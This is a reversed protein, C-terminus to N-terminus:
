NCLVVTAAFEAWKSPPAKKTLVAPLSTNRRLVTTPEKACRKPPASNTVDPHVSRASNVENTSETEM